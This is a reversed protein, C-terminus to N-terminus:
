KAYQQDKWRLCIWIDGAGLVPALLLAYDTDSNPFNQRFEKVIYRGPELYGEVQSQTDPETFGKLRIHLQAITKTTTM